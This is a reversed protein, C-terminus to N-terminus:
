ATPTPPFLVGIPTSTPPRRLAPVAHTDTTREAGFGWVWNKDPTVDFLGRALIYSRSTDNDFFQHNNFLESYTYGARIDIM